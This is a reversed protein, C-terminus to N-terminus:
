ASPAIIWYGRARGPCKRAGVQNRARMVIDAVQQGKGRPRGVRLSGEKGAEDFALQDGPTHDDMVFDYRVFGDNCTSKGTRLRHEAAPPHSASGCLLLRGGGSHSTKCVATLSLLQM